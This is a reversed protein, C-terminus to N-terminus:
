DFRISCKITYKVIEISKYFKSMIYKKICEEVTKGCDSAFSYYLM